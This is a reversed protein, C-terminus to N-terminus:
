SSFCKIELRRSHQCRFSALMARARANGELQIRIVMFVHAFQDLVSPFSSRAQSVRMGANEANQVRTGAAAARAHRRAKSSRKTLEHMRISIICLWLTNSETNATLQLRAGNHM